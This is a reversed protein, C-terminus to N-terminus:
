SLNEVIISSEHMIHRFPQSTKFFMIFKYGVDEFSFSLVILAFNHQLDNIKIKKQLVKTKKNKALNCM